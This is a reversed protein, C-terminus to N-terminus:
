CDQDRLIRADLLHAHTVRHASDLDALASLVKEGPYTLEPRRPPNIRETVPTTEPYIGDEALRALAANANQIVWQAYRKAEAAAAALHLGRSVADLRDRAVEESAQHLTQWLQDSM